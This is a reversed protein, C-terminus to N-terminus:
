RVPYGPLLILNFFEFQLEIIKALTKRDQLVIIAIEFKERFVPLRGDVKVMDHHPRQEIILPFKVPDPLEMPLDEDGVWRCVDRISFHIVSEPLVAPFLPALRYLLFQKFIQKGTHLIGGRYKVPTFPLAAPEERLLSLWGLMIGNKM